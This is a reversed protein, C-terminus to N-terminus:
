APAAKKHFRRWSYRRQVEEGGAARFADLVHCAEGALIGAAAEAQQRTM